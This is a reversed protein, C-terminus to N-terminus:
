PSSRYRQPALGATDSKLTLIHGNAPYHALESDPRNGATTIILTKLNTGGFCLMTPAKAPLPIKQVINGNPAIKIIAAGEYLALWYNGESDVAAGDPRGQYTTLPADTGRTDTTQFFVTRNSLATEVPARADFDYRYVTHAQTDAHYMTTGDPSVAWGNATTMGWNTHPKTNALEGLIPKLVDRELCFLNAGAHTKPAYLSGIWWRGQADVGGDNFRTTNTDYPAPIRIEPSLNKQAQDPNFSAIGARLALMLDGNDALAMAGIDYRAELPLQWVRHTADNDARVTHQHIQHQDIDMWFWAQRQADWLPSEALGARTNPDGYLTHLTTHPM